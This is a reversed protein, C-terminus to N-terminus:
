RLLWTTMTGKGKVDFPDRQEFDFEDLLLRHTEPAVQIRGPLGTSEMRSAVNVTDGWVDYFFKNAGVVGAVVPGSAIGIRISIKSGNLDRMGQAKDLMDISLRLIAAAHDMRAVPVGSVVMYNDGTTKIKELGHRQVLHDFTTFVEDLFRVLDAPSTESAAATFGAMDAFLVSAEDHKDAIVTERGSKLRDAIAGPLINRLLSESRGYELEAAVEAKETEGVAYLVTAVITATAMGVSGVFGGLMAAASLLGGDKPAIIELLIVLALCIVVIALLPAIPRLGWVLVSGAAYGLFHLQMGTDTGLAFCVVFTVPLSVSVFALGAIQPGFRNLLPIAAVIVAMMLDIMAITRLKTEPFYQIAFALWSPATVWCALNLVRLRRAVKEPHGETGFTLAKMLYM